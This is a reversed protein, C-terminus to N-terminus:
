DTLLDLPILASEGQRLPPPVVSVRNGLLIPRISDYHCGNQHCIELWRKQESNFKSPWERDSFTCSSISNIPSIKTWIYDSNCLLSNTAVYIDLNFMTSAAKLELQTGFTNPKCISRLHEDLIVGGNLWGKLLEGNLFIFECLKDRLQGHKDSDGSLQKALSRFMCNGDGLVSDLKRGHYALFTIPDNTTSSKDQITVEATYTTQDSNTHTKATM